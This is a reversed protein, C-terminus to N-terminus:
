PDDPLPHVLHWVFLASNLDRCLPYILAFSKEFLIQVGVQTRIWWGSAPAVIEPVFPNILNSHGIPQIIIKVPNMRLGLRCMPEFVVEVALQVVVECRLVFLMDDIYSVKEVSVEALIRGILRLLLEHFCSYLLLSLPFGQRVGSTPTWCEHVKWDAFRKQM